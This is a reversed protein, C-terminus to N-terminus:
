AAWVFGEGALWNIAIRIASERLMEDPFEPYAIRLRPLLEDVLIDFRAARPEALPEFLPQM